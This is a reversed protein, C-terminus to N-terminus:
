KIIYKVPNYYMGLLNYANESLRYLLVLWVINENVFGLYFNRFFAM